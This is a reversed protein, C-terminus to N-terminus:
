NQQWGEDGVLPVFRFASFAEKEVNNEATRTFRYMNQSKDDGIPIVLKGGINLQEILSKPVTPAGATVIIRDYPAMPAYGKSGKDVDLLETQFAVTYPQSITQGAEIPFAKDQYAHEVFAPDFFFHRPVKGIADLVRSDTIGKSAVTNVLKRRLGKHRYSDEFTRM